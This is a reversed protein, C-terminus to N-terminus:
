DGEGVVDVGFELLNVVQAERGALEVAPILAAEGCFGGALNNAGALFVLHGDAGEPAAPFARRDPVEAFARQSQSEDGAGEPVFAQFHEHTPRVKRRM